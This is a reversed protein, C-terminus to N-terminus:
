FALEDMTGANVCFEHAHAGATGAALERRCTRVKGCRACSLEMDRLLANFGHRVADPDLGRAEMMEDMLESHDAIRPAIDMLDAESIGLDTALFQLDGRSMANLENDRSVRAKLWDFARGLINHDSQTLM